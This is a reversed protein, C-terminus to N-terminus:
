VLGYDVHKDIWLHLTVSVGIWINVTTFLINQKNNNNLSAM